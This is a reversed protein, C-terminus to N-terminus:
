PRAPHSGRTRVDHGATRLAALDRKITRESVGLTQALTAVTPAASQATSERLLRLIRHHRRATRGSIEDDEPASITWAVEVFEDQRLPRGTPADTHPLRVTQRRPPAPIYGLDHAAVIARNGAVNKLFSRHMAPDTISAATDQLATYAQELHPRAAELGETAAIVQYRVFYADTLRSVLDGLEELTAVAQEALSRAEALNGQRLHALALCSQQVAQDMVQKGTRAAEVAQSLYSIAQKCDRQELAILGLAGLSEIEFNRDGVQRCIDLAKQSVAQARELDGLNLHNIGQWHLIIGQWNRDGLDILARYAETLLTQSRRYCGLLTLAIGANAQAAAARYQDGTARAVRENKEFCALAYAYNGTMGLHLNGLMNLVNIEGQRNDTTRFIASAKEIATQCSDTDGIRWWARATVTLCNGLLDHEGAARALKAADDLLELARIPDGALVELWGQRYRTRAQRATDSLAKALHQMQTLVNGQAARRGLVGFANEQHALIDWHATSNQDAWALARDYHALASEYDGIEEAQEGARMTYVLAKSPTNGRSFHLALPEIQDPCLTELAKGARRHLEQRRQPEINRYTNEWMLDHGFHYGQSAEVLFGQQVLASLHEILESPAIQSGHALIGFDANEGLVAVWELTARLLPSLRTLREGVLQRISAPVPLPRDSAPLNWSGDPLLVMDNQELLTKLMEIIFLPNGGSEDWLRSAFAAEQTGTRLAQQVLSVTQEATLSELRIRCVAPIRALEELTDHVAPRKHAQATRYTIIILLRSGKLWRFLNRLAALSAEDAWHLDELLLLLPASQSLGAICRALGEWMREPQRDLPSDAIRPLDPVNDAITPFLQALASLHRTEILTALQALSLPTLLDRLALTLLGFPLAPTMQEMKATGVRFGRWAADAAIEAALRSKGVGANGALLALRTHGQLANQLADLLMNREQERGVFPLHALDRLIPPPPPALPLHPAASKNLAASIEQYLDLTAVTPPANLEESLLRRLTDFQALAAQSRGQLHYLRMLERHTMERLPDAAVLKQAYILAQGYDGQQKHLAISQELAGLYLERLREREVLAWDDYCEPFFDARYLQISAKQETERAKQEFEQVDLWDGPHFGFTVNERGTALRGAAPGLAARIQWLAQSLSRRARTDPREPWFLGTLRNRPIPRDHHMVLYVLLSRARASSPNPLPKGDCALELPGFFRIHLASESTLHRADM